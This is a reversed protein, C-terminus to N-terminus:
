CSLSSDGLTISLKPAKLGRWALLMVMPPLNFHLACVWGWNKIFNRHYFLWGSKALWCDCYKRIEYIIHLSSRKTIFAFVLLPRKRGQGSPRRPGQPAARLPASPVAPIWMAERLRASAGAGGPLTRPCSSQSKLKRALLSTLYSIFSGWLAYCSISPLFVLSYQVM